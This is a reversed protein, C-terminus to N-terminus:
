GQKKIYKNSRLSTISTDKTTKTIMPIHFHFMKHMVNNLRKVHNYQRKRNNSLTM